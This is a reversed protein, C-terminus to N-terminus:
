QLWFAGQLWQSDDGDFAVVDFRALPCAGSWHRRSLEPLLFAATRLLRAQKSRNVSAAAGGFRAHRRARVEVFVLTDGDRMVLDIEGHRCALNRALPTLGASILRQLAQDERDAGARQTASQRVPVDSKLRTKRNANRRRNRAARERAALALEFAIRLPEENM